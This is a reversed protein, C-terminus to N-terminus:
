PHIEGPTSRNERRRRAIFAAGRGAATCLGCVAGALLVPDLTPQLSGATALLGFWLVAASSAAGVVWFVALHLVVWPVHRMSHAVLYSIPFCAWFMVFTICAAFFGVMVVLGGASAAWLSLVAIGMALFGWSWMIYVSNDAADFPARPARPTTM